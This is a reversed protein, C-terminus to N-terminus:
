IPKRLVVVDQEEAYLVQVAVLLIGPAVYTVFM